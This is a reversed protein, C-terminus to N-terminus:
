DSLTYPEDPSRRPVLVALFRAGSAAARIGHEVDAALVSWDGEGLRESRGDAVLEVDGELVLTIQEQAHRHLPFCADPDFSYEAVTAHQSSFTRRRVGPFPTEVPLGDLSGERSM